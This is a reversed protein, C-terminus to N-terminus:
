FISYKSLNADSTLNIGIKRLPIKDDEVPIHTTHMECDKLEELKTLALRTTPNTTATMALAILTENVNLSKSTEGLKKKLRKVNQIVNKSILDIEDPIEALVKIANLLAASEAHLLPSNKGTVIKGNPLEIAAGSFFGREGKGKIEAQVASNRAPDVVSRDKESVGVKKMLLEIRKMTELTGIGQYLENKYRFYYRIIEQKSAERIVDDDIIGFSIKNVGMDTPSKYSFLIDDKRMIKNMIKKMIRFNEIDRNYNVVKKGYAKLHFHDIVNFDGIDATSAEYSINVPHNIPLDWVPFTEFKAFGTEVSKQRDHYLQSLCTSMKGSGGGTGTVIVIPKKTEIYEQKEYGNKSLIISINKPYGKIEHHIYVRKGYNELQRKFKLAAEEKEFRTIVIKKVDIGREKLNQIEGLCQQDYTLGFDGRIRRKQIDKASICYIIEIKDKLRQFMKMKTDLEYGPLTRAAHYDFCLKGGFELYLKKKFKKVRDLIAKIQTNLYKQTSFGQKKM